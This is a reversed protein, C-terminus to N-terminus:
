RKFALLSLGTEGSASVVNRYFVLSSSMMLHKNMQKIILLSAVSYDKGVHCTKM